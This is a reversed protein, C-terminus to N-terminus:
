RYRLLPRHSASSYGAAGRRLPPRARRRPLERRRADARRAPGRLLAACRCHRGAALRRDQRDAGQARRAGFRTVDWDESGFVDLVPIKIRYMDELGNIISIFVWAHVRSTPRHDSLPQGDDRRPQALRHRYGRRARQQLWDIALAFREDADRFRRCTSASTRPAPCCRCRSRSRRYGADALRIRLTATSTTTPRGAAATRSSWARRSTPPGRTCASSAIGTRRSWGCRTASSSRPWLRDAM